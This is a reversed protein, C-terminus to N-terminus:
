CPDASKVCVDVKATKNAEKLVVKKKEVSKNHKSKADFAKHGNVKWQPNEVVFRCIEKHKL